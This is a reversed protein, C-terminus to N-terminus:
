RCRSGISWPSRSNAGAVYAELLGATDYRLAQGIAAALGGAERVLEIGLSSGQGDPKVVLPYGLSDAAQAIESAPTAHSFARYDPTPVGCARFRVKSALKSMAAQAAASTPGTFAVQEQEFFRQLRGDEGAGGHLALFVADFRGWDVQHWSVPEFLGDAPEDDPCNDRQSGM